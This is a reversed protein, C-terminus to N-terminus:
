LSWTILALIDQVLYNLKGLRKWTIRALIDEVFYTKKIKELCNM